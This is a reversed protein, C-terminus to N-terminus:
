GMLMCEFVMMEATTAAIPMKAVAVEASHVTLHVSLLQQKRSLFARVSCSPHVVTTGPVLVPPSIRKASPFRHGGLTTAVHLALQQSGVVPHPFPQGLYRM